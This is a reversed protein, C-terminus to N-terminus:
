YLLIESWFYLTLIGQQYNNGNIIFHLFLNTISCYNGDHYKIHYYHTVDVQGNIYDILIIM